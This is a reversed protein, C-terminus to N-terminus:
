RRVELTAVYPALRALFFDWGTGHEQYQQELVAAEWGLERFGTETMRLLTGSGSPALDFTVLLSNGAAAAEGVPHTWRFSFLKPPRADVVTFPVVTGGADRDGFVIEGVSGPTPDYRADDPWWQRLHNPSSVVDFVIEPSAEVYIEREISGFEM